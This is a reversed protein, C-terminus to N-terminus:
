HEAGGPLCLTFVSGKGPESQVTVDGGMMRALKRSIALGLGTGGYRRATLSDAQTFDQFMKALQEATMGIGSDAVALEVSDRGDAVKRVRLAVEGEKTFKCANSLLNLLIQKLRMSDANLAGLKEQTEVILRNKNKEALQGATGIVDDILRTLNVPELNLDLKGAEIKSLDLIENILSLLHTGAANVRRLPELAKETGFRAANTVMMETLGIIANLPTRLEHSMSALFQSKRESAEALQMSKDQIEDFLRVNEIAIAAQDAFTSVLEIQKDTFPRVETRTLALVGIPVGERLMPVGLITRFGGLKQAEAWTYDPDALVDPIHIIKGELLARGHVTGREPEVPVDRVYDMFETSFGYAEARFFKGGIQRTITAQDAECLRAASEVLTQLVSKLDFTSRSIVKLVDATATQQQLSESLDDTRQRLENFLRVNDIAIVAQSAFTKLLEVQTESFLRPELQMIAIAGIAVDDRMMPVVLIARYGSTRQLETYGGSVLVDAIHVVRRERVAVAILNSSTIPVPYAARVAAVSDPSFQDHAVLHVLEGDSRYVASLVSQCLQAANKIITEFVPQADFASRSIVNLVEATATQQALSERLENLLRTNEIAILAQDAFTTVLEIQKATFPQPVKKAVFIVGVVDGKHLLPAGLASRYGGIEQAGSWTYDPDALVDPVQVVRAELAARGTVSGRNAPVERGQFYEKLRGHVDVAHGFIAALRFVDGDRQFLWAYDAECLRTVSEVLTDLVTQLDFTSRSIVKLVDATVTQQQLSESLDTTRQRLENLLRTNEIAIVAQVAFNKVLEIQKDTFPRVETRYIFFAGILEKGKLLPVGISSRAGGYRVSPSPTPETTRDIVHIVKKTQALRGFLRGRVPAFSGQRDLFDAFAPPVNAMAAPHFVGGEYRFLIGFKAGCIRTANELMAQFVPKLEGPSSSIVRLVESTATQEERAEALERRLQKELDARPAHVRTSAETGTSRGKRGHTRSKTSKRSSAVQIAGWYRPDAKWPKM